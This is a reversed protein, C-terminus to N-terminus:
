FDEDIDIDSSQAVDFLTRVISYDDYLENTTFYYDKNNGKNMYQINFQGVEEVTNFKYSITIKNKETELRVSAEADDYDWSYDGSNTKERLNILLEKIKSPLM